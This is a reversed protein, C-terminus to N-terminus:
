WRVTWRKAYDNNETALSLSRKRIVSDKQKSQLEKEYSVSDIPIAVNEKMWSSLYAANTLQLSFIGETGPAILEANHNVADAFNQLILRHGCPFGAYKRIGRDWSM